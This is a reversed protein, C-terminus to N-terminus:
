PIIPIKRRTAEQVALNWDKGPNAKKWAAESLVQGGAASAAARRRKPPPPLSPYKDAEAKRENAKRYAADMKQQEDTQQKEFQTRQRKLTEYAPDRPSTQAMQADIRSIEGAVKTIKGQRDTAESLLAEAEKLASARRAENETNKVRWEYDSRLDAEESVQQSRPTGYVPKWDGSYDQQVVQGDIEFRPLQNLKPNGPIVHVRRGTRRSLREAEQQIAASAAAYERSQPDLTSQRKQMEAIHSLGQQHELRVEQDLQLDRDEGARAIQGATRLNGLRRTENELGATELQLTQGLHERAGAIEGERSMRQVSGPSILGQVAGVVSAGAMGGVGAKGGYPLMNRAGEAMARLRGMKQPPGIEYASGTDTVKSEPAAEQLARLRAGARETPSMGQYTQGIMVPPPLAPVPQAQPPPAPAAELAEAGMRMPPPLEGPPLENTMVPNRMPPPLATPPPDPISTAPGLRRPAPLGIEGSAIPVRAPGGGRSLEQELIASGEDDDKDVLKRALKSLFGM